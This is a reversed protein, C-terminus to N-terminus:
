KGARAEALSYWLGGRDLICVYAKYRRRYWAGISGCVALMNAPSSNFVASCYCEACAASGM